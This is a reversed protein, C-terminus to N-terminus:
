EADMLTGIFVPLKTECDIIMYVFPRDLYVEKGEEPEFTDLCSTTEVVVTAAGAKTKEEDLAFHAQHVVKQIAFRNFHNEELDYMESFDATADNFADQMGMEMLIDQMEVCYETEFMPIAASVAIRQGHDLIDMLRRGTLTSVYESVSVGKEPLLAAFAYKQDAYYKIFGEAKEDELYIGEPSYMMIVDQKKGDETTFGGNKVQNERYIEQWVSNFALANVLFVDGRSAGNDLIDKIMGDTKESVWLNIDQIIPDESSFTYIDGKYYDANLQLFDRKFGTVTEKLWISNAINLKYKKGKPLNNVYTYLYENLEGIPMGFVEEMQSLTNGHTGNATMGLACLVSVPSILINKGNVQSEQFLQVGFDAVAIRQEGDLPMSTEVTNPKIGKMMAESQIKEQGSCGTLSFQAMVAMTLCLLAATMRKKTRGTMQTKMQVKMRKKM